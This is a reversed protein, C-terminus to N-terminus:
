RISQDTEFDLSKVQTRNELLTGTDNIKKALNIPNFRHTVDKRYGGKMCGSFKARNVIFYCYARKLEDNANINKECDKAFEKTMETKLVMKILEPRLEKNIVCQWFAYVGPDLDNMIIRMKPHQTAVALSVAGGGCFLDVFTEINLSYTNVMSIIAHRFRYKGGSYGLPSRVQRIKKVSINNM